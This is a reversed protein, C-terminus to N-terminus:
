NELTAAVTEGDILGLTFAAVSRVQADPDHAAELLASELPPPPESAIASQRSLIEALSALAAARVASFATADPADRHEQSADVLVGIAEPGLAGLARCLYAATLIRTKDGTDAEQLEREAVTLIRESQKESVNGAFQLLQFRLEVAAETRPGHDDELVALLRDLGEQPYRHQRLLVYGAVFLGVILGPLVIMSWM